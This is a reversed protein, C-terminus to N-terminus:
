QGTPSNTSLKVGLRNLLEMGPLNTPSEADEPEGFFSTLNWALARITLKLILSADTALDEVSFKGGPMIIPIAAEVDGVLKLESVVALCDLQLELFSAKTMTKSSLNLLESPLGSSEPLMGLVPPLAEFLVKYVIYSGTLADFKGIQFRRGAAEYITTTERKKPAM